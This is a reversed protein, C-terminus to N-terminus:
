SRARKEGGPKGMNEQLRPCKNEPVARNLFAEQNHCHVIGVHATARPVHGELGGGQELQGSVANQLLLIQVQSGVPSSDCTCGSSGSLM